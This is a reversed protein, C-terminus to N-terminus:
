RCQQESRVLRDTDARDSSSNTNSIPPQKNCTIAKCGYASVRCYSIHSEVTRNTMRSRIHHCDIGERLENKACQSDLHGQMSGEVHSGGKAALFAFFDRRLEWPADPGRDAVLQESTLHESLFVPDL